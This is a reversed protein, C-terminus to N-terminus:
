KMAVYILSGLSSHILFEHRASPVVVRFLFSCFLYFHEVLARSPFPLVTLVDARIDGRCTHIAM